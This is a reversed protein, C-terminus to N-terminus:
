FLPKQTQSILCFWSLFLPLIQFPPELPQATSEISRGKGLIILYDLWRKDFDFFSKISM